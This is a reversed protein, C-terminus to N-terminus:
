RLMAHKKFSNVRTKGRKRSSSLSLGSPRISQTTAESGERVGQRQERQEREREEDDTTGKDETGAEEGARRGGAGAGDDTAGEDRGGGAAGGGRRRQWQM